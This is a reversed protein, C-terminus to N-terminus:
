YKISNTICNTLISQSYASLAKVQISDSIENIIKGNTEKLVGTINQEVLFLNENLSLL